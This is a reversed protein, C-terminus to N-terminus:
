ARKLTYIFVRAPLEELLPQVASKMLGGLGIGPYPLAVIKEPNQELWLRLATVSVAILELTSPNKWDLKTQFAGLTQTSNLLLGYQHTGVGVQNGLERPLRPFLNAFSLAVGAGMVLGNRTVVGNSTFLFLDASASLVNGTLFTPM